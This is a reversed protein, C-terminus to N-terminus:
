DILFKKLEEIAEKSSLLDGDISKKGYKKSSLFLIQPKGNTQYAFATKFNDKNTNSVVIFKKSVNLYRNLLSENNQFYCLSRENFVFYNSCPYDCYNPVIFFTLQSNTIADLIEMEKDNAFPCKNGNVFCQYSCDGCANLKIESFYFRKANPYMSNVFDGIHACNGDKHSSFSVICVSM